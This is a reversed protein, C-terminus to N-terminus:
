SGRPAIRLVVSAVLTVVVHGIAAVSLATAASTASAIAGWVTAGVSTGLWVML